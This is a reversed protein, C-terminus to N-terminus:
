SVAWHEVKVYPNITKVEREFSDIESGIGSTWFQIETLEGPENVYEIKYAYFKVGLVRADSLSLKVKKVKSLHIELVRGRGKLYLNEGDYYLDYSTFGKVAMVGLFVSIVGSVALVVASPPDTTVRYTIAVLIILLIAPVATRTLRNYPALKNM